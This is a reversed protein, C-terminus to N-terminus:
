EKEEAKAKIYFPTRKRIIRYLNLPRGALQGVDRTWPSLAYSITQPTDKFKFIRLPISIFVGKDNYGRNFPDTFNSTDSFTYWFGVEFGRVIRSVEIRVGKDGALFRGAKVTFNMEPYAMTYHLSLYYDHFYYKELDLLTRAKRKYVYDGGLGVALKGDGIFHLIDGGVGAFMLENYGASVGVFTNRMIPSIYNLSLVPIKVGKYGLYNDIDSRVAPDMLPENVSYINNTIPLSLRSVFFFNNMFEQNYIIDYSIEYKFAGSPDNLFSRMKLNGSLYPKSAYVIRKTKYDPAL